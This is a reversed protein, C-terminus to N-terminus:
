YPMQLVHKLMVAMHTNRYGPPSYKGLIFFFIYNNEKKLQVQLNHGMYAYQLIHTLIGTQEQDSPLVQLLWLFFEYFELTLIVNNIIILPSHM